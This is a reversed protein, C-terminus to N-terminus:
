RRRGTRASGSPRSGDAQMMHTYATHGIGGLVNEVALDTRQQHVTLEPVVVAVPVDAPERSLSRTIRRRKRPRRARPRSRRMQLVQAPTYGLAAIASEDAQPVPM